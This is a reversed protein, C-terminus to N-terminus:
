GRVALGPKLTVVRVGDYNFAAGKNRAETELFVTDAKLARIDAKGAAVQIVLMLLDFVEVAKKPEAIAVGAIKLPAAQSAPVNARLPQAAVTEAATAYHTATATDGEAAAAKAAADLRQLRQRREEEAKERERRESEERERRSAEAREALYTRLRDRVIGDAEKLPELLAAIDAKVAAVAKKAESETSKVASLSKAFAAEVREMREKLAVLVRGALEAAEDSDVTLALAEARAAPV